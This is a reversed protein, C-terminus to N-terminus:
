MGRLTVQVWSTVTEPTLDTTHGSPFHYHMSVALSLWAAAATAAKSPCESRITRQRSSAGRPRAKTIWAGHARTTM